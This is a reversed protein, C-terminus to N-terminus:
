SVGRQRALSFRGIPTIHPKKAMQSKPTPSTQAVEAMEVKKQPQSKSKDTNDAAPAFLCVGPTNGLLLIGGCYYCVGAVSLPAWFVGLVAFSFIAVASLIVSDFAVAACRPPMRELIRGGVFWAVQQSLTLRLRARRSATDVAPTPISPEPEPFREAFERWVTDPDLGIASAYSRLFARRYFGVPWRSVDNNELGELLAGLIKTSDAISAISIKRREREHRLRAGFSDRPIASKNEPPHMTAIRSAMSHRGPALRLGSQKKDFKQVFAFADGSHHHTLHLFLM